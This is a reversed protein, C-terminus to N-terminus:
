ANKHESQKTVTYRERQSPTFLRLQQHHHHLIPIAHVGLSVTGPVPPLCQSSVALVVCALPKCFKNSRTQNGLATQVSRTELVHCALEFYELMLSQITSFANYTQLMDEKMQKLM